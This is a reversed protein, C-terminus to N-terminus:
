HGYWSVIQVRAQEKAEQLWWLALSRSANYSLMIGRGNMQFNATRRHGFSYFLEWTCFLWRVVLLTLDNFFGCITIFLSQGFHPFRVGHKYFPSFGNWIDVHLAGENGRLRLLVWHQDIAVCTALSAYEPISLWHHLDAHADPCLFLETARASPMWHVFYAQAAFIMRRAVTDVCKDSLGKTLFPGAAELVDDWLRLTASKWLRSDLHIRVGQGYVFKLSRAWGLIDLLEFLFTGAAIEVGSSVNPLGSFSIQILGTPPKCAQRKPVSTMQYKGLLPSQQLLHHGPLQGLEDQVSISTGWDSIKREAMLWSDITESPSTQMTTGQGDRHEYDVQAPLGHHLFAGHIERLLNLIYSM